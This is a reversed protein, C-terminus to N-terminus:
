RRANNYHLHFRVAAANFRRSERQQDIPDKKTNAAERMSQMKRTFYENVKVVETIEM